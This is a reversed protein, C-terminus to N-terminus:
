RNRLISASHENSVCQPCVSCLSRRVHSGSIMVAPSIRHWTPLLFLIVAVSIHYEIVDVYYYASVRIENSKTERSRKKKKKWNKEYLYHSKIKSTEVLLSLLANYNFPISYFSNPVRKERTKLIEYYSFLLVYCRVFRVTSGKRLARIM